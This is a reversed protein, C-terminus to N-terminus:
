LVKTLLACQQDRPRQLMQALNAINFAIRRAEDRM